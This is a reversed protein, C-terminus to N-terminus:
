ALTVLLANGEVAAGESVHVKKVTAASRARLENEMKMAELVVLGQGQRVAEGEVVLVKVVRGPMPSRVVFDRAVPGTSGDRAALSSRESEVLVHWQRGAAVMTRFPMEGIGVLEVVSGGVRVSLDAGGLPVADVVVRHGDVLAEHSGDSPLDVVHARGPPDHPGLTVRYRM